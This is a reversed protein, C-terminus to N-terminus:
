CILNYSLIMKILQLDYIILLLNFICFLLEQLKNEWQKYFDLILEFNHKTNWDGKKEGYKSRKKLITLNSKSFYIKFFM